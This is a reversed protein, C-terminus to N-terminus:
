IAARASHRSVAHSRRSSRSRIASHRGAAQLQVDRPSPEPEHLLAQPIQLEEGITRRRVQGARRELTRCGFAEDLDDDIERDVDVAVEDHGGARGGRLRTAVRKGGGRDPM